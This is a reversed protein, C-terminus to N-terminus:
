NTLAKLIFLLTGSTREVDKLKNQLTSLKIYTNIWVIVGVPLLIFLLYSPIGWTYYQFDSLNISPLELVKEKIIKTDNNLTLEAAYKKIAQLQTSYNKYDIDASNISPYFILNTFRLNIFQSIRNTDSSFNSLSVKLSELQTMYFPM